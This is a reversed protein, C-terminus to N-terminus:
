RKGRSESHLETQNVKGPQESCLPKDINAANDTTVSLLKLPVGLRDGTAVFADCLDEGSHQGLLPVFDLVLSRLVWDDDIYHATIELFAKVNPWTWCDFTVSTKSDVNRLRDGLQEAKERRCRMIERKTTNASPVDVDTQSAFLLRFVRCSLVASGRMGGM